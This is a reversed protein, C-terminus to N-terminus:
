SDIKTLGKFDTLRDMDGLCLSCGQAGEVHCHRVPEIFWLNQLDIRAAPCTLDTLLDAHFYLIFDVDCFHADGVAICIPDHELLPNRLTKSM